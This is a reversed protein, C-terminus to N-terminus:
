ESAAVPERATSRPRAAPRRMLDVVGHALRSRLADAVLDGGAYHVERPRWRTKSVDTGTSLNVLRLRQAIAWKIAEAVTTTMVSYRGWEPAYGSFYLYLEDGFLFGLRTAIVTEAVVLQFVRLGGRAALARCYDHLFARSTPTAFVNAHAITGSRDARHQHLELFRGVAADVEAPAEVVRFEFGHGDRTLSNYCKRLSEKINRPLLARFGEWSDPLDLVYDVLDFARSSPVARGLWDDAVPSRQVGRWQVWDWREASGDFAAQLAPMVEAVREAVCVPGRMETVYSDAGFFQLERTRFPGVSPRVTLMMPAVAVLKGADDRVSHIRLRDEAKLSKRGFHRWWTVNWLPTAFPSRPSVTQALDEWEPCIRALGAADTITEVKLM